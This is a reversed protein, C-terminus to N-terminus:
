RGRTPVGLASGYVAGSTPDVTEHQSPTNLKLVYGRPDGGFIPTFAPYDALAARVLEATRCDPCVKGFRARMGPRAAMFQVYESSTRFSSPAFGSGCNPCERTEREGNDAPWDGNCQAVALRDLTTAYRLLKQAVHLPLGDQAVAAIFQDREHQYTM